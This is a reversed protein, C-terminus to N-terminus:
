RLGGSIVALIVDNITHAHEERVARLDGLPVRVTALRPQGSGLGAPPSNGPRRGRLADGALEGLAGGVGGVAEGVAVAVGLAGTLTGRVNEIAQAPDQTSEWLA